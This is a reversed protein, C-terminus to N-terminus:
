KKEQMEWMRRNSAKEYSLYDSSKNSSKGEGQRKPLCVLPSRNMVCGESQFGRRATSLLLPVVSVVPQRSRKREESGYMADRRFREKTVCNTRIKHLPLHITTQTKQQGLNGAQM